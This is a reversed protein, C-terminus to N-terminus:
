PGGGPKLPWAGRLEYEGDEFGAVAPHTRVEKQVVREDDEVGSSRWLCGFPLFDPSSPEGAGWQVM